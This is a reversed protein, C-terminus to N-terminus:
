GFLCEVQQQPVHHAQHDQVLHSIEYKEHALDDDHAGGDSYKVELEVFRYLWDSLELEEIMGFEIVLPKRNEDDGGTRPHYRGREEM